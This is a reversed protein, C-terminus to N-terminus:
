MFIYLLWPPLCIFFHMKHLTYLEINIIAQKIDQKPIYQLAVSFISSLIFSM